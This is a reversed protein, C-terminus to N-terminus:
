MRASSTHIAEQCVNTCRTSSWHFVSSFLVFICLLGEHLRPTLPRIPSPFTRSLAVFSFSFIVAHISSGCTTCAVGCLVRIMERLMFWTPMEHNSEACCVCVLFLFCILLNLFFVWLLLGFLLAFLFLAFLGFFAFFSFFTVIFWCVFVIVFYVMWCFTFLYVPRCFLFDCCFLFLFSFVGYCYILLFLLMRFLLGILSVLLFNCCEVLWRSLAGAVLVHTRSYM